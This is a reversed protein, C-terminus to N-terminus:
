NIGYKINSQTIKYIKVLLYNLELILLYRIDM